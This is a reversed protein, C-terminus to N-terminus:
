RNGLQYCWLQNYGRHQPSRKSQTVSSSRRHSPPAHAALCFGRDPPQGRFPTSGGVAHIDPLVLVPGASAIICVRCAVNLLDKPLGCTMSMCGPMQPLASARRRGSRAGKTAPQKENKERRTGTQRSNIDVCIMLQKNQRTHMRPLYREQAPAGRHQHWYLSAVDKASSVDGYIRRAPPESPTIVVTERRLIYSKFGEGTLM